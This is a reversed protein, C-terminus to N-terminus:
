PRSITAIIQGVAQTLQGIQLAMQDLQAQLHVEVGSPLTSEAASTAAAKAKAKTNAKLQPGPADPVVTKPEVESGLENVWEEEGIDGGTIEEEAEQIKMEVWQLWRTQAPSAGKMHELTWKVFSQDEWAEDFTKKKFRRGFNIRDEGTPPETSMEKIKQLNAYRDKLEAM